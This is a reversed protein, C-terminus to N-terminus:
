WTAERLQAWRPMSMVPVDSSHSPWTDTELCRAFIDLAQRNRRRGAELLPADLQVVNVLYPAAKEQFIFVFVADTSVLGGAISGDLYWAAQQNYALDWIVKELKSPDCSTTTKYDAIVDRGGFKDACLWDLRARRALGDDDWFLSLEAGGSRLLRAALPYRQLADAMAKVDQYDKWLLPIQGKAYAETRAEQAVNKRWSDERVIHIEPGSGLVFKHAASGYDFAAKHEPHDVQYRFLAPCSPAMLKKASSSSLVWHHSHYEDEPMDTYIGPTPGSM